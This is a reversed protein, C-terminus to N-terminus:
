TEKRGRIHHARHLHKHLYWKSKFKNGCIRCEFNLENSSMHINELHQKLNGPSSYTRQCIPCPLPEFSRMIGVELKDVKVRM